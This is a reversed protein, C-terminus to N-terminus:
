APIPADGRSPLPASLAVPSHEMVHTVSRPLPIQGAKRDGARQAVLDVLPADERGPRHVANPRAAAVRM